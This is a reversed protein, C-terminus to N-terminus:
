VGGLGLIKNVDIGDSLRKFYFKGRQFDNRNIKGARFDEIAKVTEVVFKVTDIDAPPFKQGAIKDSKGQLFRLLQKKTVTVRGVKCRLFSYFIQKLNDLQRDTIYTMTYFRDILQRRFLSEDYKLLRIDPLRRSAACRFCRINYCNAVEALRFFRVPYVSYRKNDQMDM